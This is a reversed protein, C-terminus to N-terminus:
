VRVDERMKSFGGCSVAHEGGSAGCLASTYFFMDRVYPLCSVAPIAAVSIKIVTM